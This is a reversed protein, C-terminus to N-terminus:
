VAPPQPALVVGPTTLPITEWTLLNKKLLRLIQSFNTCARSSTERTLIFFLYFIFIHFFILTQRTGLPITESTPASM